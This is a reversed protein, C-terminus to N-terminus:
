SNVITNYGNKVLTDLFKVVSLYRVDGREAELAKRKKGSSWFDVYVARQPLAQCPAGGEKRADLVVTKGRKGSQQCMEKAAATPIGYEEYIYDAFEEYGEPCDTVLTFHNVRTLYPDLLRFLMEREERFAEEGLAGDRHGEGWGIYVVYELCPAQSLMKRLLVEPPLREGIGAMRAVEPQLYYDEAKREELFRCLSDTLRGGEWKKNKWFFEPIGCCSLTWGEEMIVETEPM